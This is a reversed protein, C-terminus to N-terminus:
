MRIGLHIQVGTQLYLLHLLNFSPLYIGQFMTPQAMLVCLNWNYYNVPNEHALELEQDM